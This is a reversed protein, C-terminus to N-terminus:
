QQGKARMLLKNAGLFDIISIEVEEKLLQTCPADTHGYFLYFRVLIQLNKKKKVIYSINDIRDSYPKLDHWRAM